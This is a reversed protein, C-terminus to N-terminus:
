PVSLRWGSCEFVALADFAGGADYFRKRNRDETIPATVRMRRVSAGVPAKASDGGGPGSAGSRPAVGATHWAGSLCWHGVDGEAREAHWGGEDRDEGGVALGAAKGIWTSVRGSVSAPRSTSPRPLVPEPLVMAKASGM